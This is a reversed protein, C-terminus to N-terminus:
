AMRTKRLNVDAALIEVDGWLIRVKAEMLSDVAKMESNEIM